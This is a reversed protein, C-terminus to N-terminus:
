RQSRVRHNHAVIAAYTGNLAAMLLVAATRNKRWLREVLYITGATAAAKIALMAATNDALGRVIPNAERGGAELARRTSAVDAIQLAV